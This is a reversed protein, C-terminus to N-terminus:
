HSPHLPMLYSDLMLMMSCCSHNPHIYFLPLLMPLHLLMLMMLVMLQRHVFHLTPLFFQLRSTKVLPFPLLQSPYVHNASIMNLFGQM